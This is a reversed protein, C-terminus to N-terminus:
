GVNNATATSAVYYFHFSEYVCMYLPLDAYLPLSKRTHQIHLVAIDYLVPAEVKM